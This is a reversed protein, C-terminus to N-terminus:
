ACSQKCGHKNLTNHRRDSNGESITPLDDRYLLSRSSVAKITPMNDRYFSSRGAVGGLM